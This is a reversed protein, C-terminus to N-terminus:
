KRSINCPFAPQGGLEVIRHEVFEAVELLSAGVLVKDKAESRVKSLIEGAKIYKQIIEEIEQVKENM